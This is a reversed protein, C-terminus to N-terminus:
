GRGTVAKWLTLAFYFAIGVMPGYIMVLWLNWWVNPIQCASVSSNWRTSGNTAAKYAACQAESMDYHLDYLFSYELKLAQWIAGIVNLPNEGSVVVGGIDPEKAETFAQYKMAQINAVQAATYMEQKELINSILTCVM